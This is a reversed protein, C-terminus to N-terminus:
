KRIYFIIHKYTDLNYRFILFNIFNTTKLISYYHKTHVHIFKITLFKIFKYYLLFNIHVEIAWGIHLGFGM